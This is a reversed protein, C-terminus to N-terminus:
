KFQIEFYMFLLIKTLRQENDNILKPTTSSKICKEIDTFLGKDLTCKEIDYTSKGCFYLIKKITNSKLINKLWNDYVGNRKEESSFSQLVYSLVRHKDYKTNNIRERIKPISSIEYEFLSAGLSGSISSLYLINISDKNYTRCGKKIFMEIEALQKVLEINDDFWVHLLVGDKYKLFYVATEFSDSKFGIKVPVKLTIHNQLIQNSILKAKNNTNKCSVISLVVTILIFIIKKMM